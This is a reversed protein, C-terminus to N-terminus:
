FLWQICRTVINKKNWGLIKKHGLFTFINHGYFSLDDLFLDLFM